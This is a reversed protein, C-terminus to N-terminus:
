EFRSNMIESDCVIDPMECEIKIGAGKIGTNNVFVSDQVSANSNLIYLAAGNDRQSSLNMFLSNSVYALSQSLRIGVESNKMHSNDFSFSSLSVFM